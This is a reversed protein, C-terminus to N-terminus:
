GEHASEYVYKGFSHVQLKLLHVDFLLHIERQGKGIRRVSAVHDTQRLVLHAVYIRQEVKEDFKYGVHIGKDNRCPDQDGEVRQKRHDKQNQDQGGADGIVPMKKDTGLKVAPIQSFVSEMGIVSVNQRLLFRRLIHPQVIEGLRQFLPIEIIM